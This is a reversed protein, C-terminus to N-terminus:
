LMVGWSSPKALTAVIVGPATNVPPRVILEVVEPLLATVDSTLTTLLLSPDTKMGMLSGVSGSLPLRVSEVTTGPVLPAAWPMLRALLLLPVSIPEISGESVRLPVNDTVEVVKAVPPTCDAILRALPLPLVVIVPVIGGASERPPLTVM